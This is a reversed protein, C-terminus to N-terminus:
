LPPPGGRGPHDAGDDGADARVAEAALLLRKRDLGWRYGALEGTSRLVRHCPILVAVPNRGIASAVARHATPHGVARAVDGYSAVRGEPIRLLAEWVKLQLNTGRLAVRVPGAGERGFAAEVPRRTGAPDVVLDAAPWDEAAAERAREPDDDDVFRLLCVGRGTVGVAAPGLPTPHTGVRITVGAGGRGVDGPTMADVTVTLDHLRGPSSLGAEYAADLVARRERLLRRATGATLHRLFRKPSTGALQTFLRQTHFESLQLHAAVDALRPQDGAHADLYRIAAAVREYDRTRSRDPATTAPVDASEPPVTAALTGAGRRSSSGNRATGTM